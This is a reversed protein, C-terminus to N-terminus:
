GGKSESERTIASGLLEGLTRTLEALTTDARAQAEALTVIRQEAQLLAAELSAVRAELAPRAPEESPAHGALDAPQPAPEPPRAARPERRFTPGSTEPVIPREKVAPAEVEENSGSAVRVLCRALDLEPVPVLLGGFPVTFYREPDRVLLLFLTASRIKPYSFKQAGEISADELWTRLPSAFTPNGANGSRLDDLSREVVFRLRALDLQYHRVLLMLDSGEDDLLGLLLHESRVEYHKRKMCRDLGKELARTSRRTLRRVLESLEITSM